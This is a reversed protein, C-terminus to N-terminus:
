PATSELKTIRTEHDDTLERLDRVQNAGVENEIRLNDVTGVFGDLTNQLRDLMTKIDEQGEQLVEVKGEVKLIEGRLSKESKKFDNRLIQIDKKTAVQVNNIKKKM